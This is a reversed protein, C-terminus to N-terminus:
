KNTSFLRQPTSVNTQLPLDIYFTSGPLSQEDRGDSEAWIRGGHAEFISRSIALGLGLGGGGFATKSTSHNQTQNATYFRDFVRKLDERDIGIGTDQVMILVDSSSSRAMLNIMGGDPTYKIANEVLNTFALRILEADARITMPWQAKNFSLSLKREKATEFCDHLVAEAIEGFNCPGLALDIRGSAIRSVTLIENVVKSMREISGVMGEIVAHLEPSSDRLKRSMESDQLLRSYGYILTLPTRLEHATLQIFDDKIKDMRLLEANSDELERIKSELRTAIEHNYSEQAQRMLESSATENEGRLFREVQSPLKDIDVPKTLYGNAGAVLAKEREGSQSLATLAVIPTQRFRADARLRTTLERGSMDPLNIDTLILDPQHKVALDLGELARGAILVKYGAFNLARQILIQSGPDDEIYLITAGM